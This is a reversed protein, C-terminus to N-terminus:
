SGSTRASSTRGPDRRIPRLSQDGARRDYEGSGYPRDSPYNGHSTGNRVPFPRRGYREDLMREREEIIRARNERDLLGRHAAYERIFAETLRGLAMDLAMPLGCRTEKMLALMRNVLAVYESKPKTRVPLVAGDENLCREGRLIAKFVETLERQTLVGEPFEPMLEAALIYPAYPMAVRLQSVSMRNELVAGQLEKCRAARDLLEADKLPILREAVALAIWPAMNLDRVLGAARQGVAESDGREKALDILGQEWRQSREKKHKDAMRNM